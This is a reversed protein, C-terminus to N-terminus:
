RLSSRGLVDGILVISSGILVGTITEVARDRLLSDVPVPFALQTMLLILPTFFFLALGYHRAIFLETPFQLCVVLWAMAVPGPDTAFILASLGLGALTGLIRHMGRGLRGSLKEAALLVAASAMAWHPHGIGIAASASGALLIAGAYESGRRVVTWPRQHRLRYSRAPSPETKRAMVAGLGLAFLAAVLCAVVPDWLGGIPPQAACAGFAFLGFFPGPPRFGIKDAFVSAVTAFAAESAILVSIPFGGHSVCAGLLVGAFLM